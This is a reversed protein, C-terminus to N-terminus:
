RSSGAGATATLNSTSYSLWLTEPSPCSLSVNFVASTSGTNGEAVTADSVSVGCWVRTMAQAQNDPLYSEPEARGAAARNTM